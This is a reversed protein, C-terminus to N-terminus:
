NWLQPMLARLNISVFHKLAVAVGFHRQEYIFFPIPEAYGLPSYLIKFRKILPTTKLCWKPLAPNVECTGVYKPSIYCKFGAKQVRLGYDFDGIAHRFKWDLNGVKAFVVKPVLLFNGNVINCPQVTGNPELPTKSSHLWGSYTVQQASKDCTAGCVVAAFSTQESATLITHIADTFLLTDDNLWLYFDFDKFASAAEWAKYMGRNWYLNGDGKLIHVQPYQEAVAEPTGDTCGDDTLFVEWRYDLVTDQLFLNRLCQLTNEKRNHVTLLIAIYKM